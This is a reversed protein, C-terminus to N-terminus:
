GSFENEIQMYATKKLFLNFIEEISTQYIRHFFICGQQVVREINQTNVLETDVNFGNTGLAPQLNNLYVKLDLM